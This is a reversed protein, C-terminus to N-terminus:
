RWGEAALRSTLRSVAADVTFAGARARLASGLRATVGPCTLLRRVADALARVDTPEVLLGTVGDEVVEAIAPTASAVVPTGVMAAEVIAGPMGETAWTTPLLLAAATALEAPVREQPIAGRYRTRPHRALEAEFAARYGEEVPGFVDLSAAVGSAAVEEVAAMAREVGKEPTVRSVFVLRGSAVSSPDWREEAPLRPNPLVEVGTVGLDELERRLWEGEVWVPRCRALCRLYLRRAPGGLRRVNGPLSSGVALFSCRLRRRCAGAMAVLAVLALAGNRSVSLLVQDHRALAGVLSALQRLRAAAGSGGTDLVEVDVGRERLAAAVLGNKVTAGGPQRSTLPGVFLLRTPATM